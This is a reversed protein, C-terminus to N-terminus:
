KLKLKLICTLGRSNVIMLIQSPPFSHTPYLSLLVFSLLSLFNLFVESLFSSLLSMSSQISGRVNFVPDLSVRLPTGLLVYVGPVVDFQLYLSIRVRHLFPRIINGFSLGFYKLNSSIFRTHLSINILFFSLTPISSSSLSIQLLNFLYEFFGFSSSQILSCPFM